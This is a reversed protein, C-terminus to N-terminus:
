PADLVHHAMCPVTQKTEQQAETHLAQFALILDERKSEETLMELTKLMKPMTIPAGDATVQKKKEPCWKLMPWSGNADVLNAKRASSLLPDKGQALLAVRQSM